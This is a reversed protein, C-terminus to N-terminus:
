VDLLVRIIWSQKDKKVALEHYTVAKVSDRPRKKEGWARLVVENKQEDFEQVKFKSFVIEHADAYALMDALLQVTLEELSHASHHFDVVEEAKANGMVSFLAKAANELAEPYDKGYAEFMIDATHELFRYEMMDRSAMQLKM